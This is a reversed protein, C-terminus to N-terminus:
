LALQHRNVANTIVVPESCDTTLGHQATFALIGRQCSKLVNKDGATAPYVIYFMLFQIYNYSLCLQLPFLIGMSSLDETGFDPIM